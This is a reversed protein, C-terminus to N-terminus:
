QNVPLWPTGDPNTVGPVHGHPGQARPDPHTSPKHGGDLRMGTPNGNADRVQIWKGDPSGTLTEGPKVSIVNGKPDVVFKNASSPLVNVPPTGKAACETVGEFKKLAKAGNKVLDDVAGAGELVSLIQLTNGLRQLFPNESANIKENLWAFGRQLKEAIQDTPVLIIIPRVKPEMGWPDIWNVPDNGVFTHLNLGGAFGIPDAQGFRGLSPVYPRGHYLNVGSQRHRLMSSFQMENVGAMAGNAELVNGFPDYRYNAVLNQSSNILATINGNADAHYYATGNADTRALLGGIGGAGDMEGSLDPGRTYTVQVTNNSDREQLVLMGDFVYRTENTQNWGGGNWSFEKRTRRRGFGDYVWETKWANTELLTTLQNEDDYGYGRTGDFTMSGNADYQLAAAITLTNTAKRGFLEHGIATLRNTGSVPVSATYSGDNTNLTATVGNVTVNTANTTTTGSVTITGALGFNTLQNLRDTAYARVSTLDNTRFALNGAADYGFHRFALISANNSAYTHAATLQGINDYAFEDRSDDKFRNFARLGRTDYAYSHANLVTASSNLLTTNTLQAVADYRDQISAGNPLTLQSRLESAGVFAYGFSGAGSTVTNMRRASDYGYSNTWTNGLTSSSRLQQAFINTLLDNSWPGDESALQGSKTFAFVTTGAADTMQKVRNLPDYDFALDPSNPYNIARLNGVPDYTFATNGKALTWRNTLRANADYAFIFDTQRNANVTSLVRGFVDHNWQNTQTRGDILQTLDSAANYTFRTVELNANTVASLRGGADYVYRTVAGLPNTRFALGNTTYAWWEVGGDPYTRSRLRGVADFTNTVTVGAADTIRIPRDRLDYVVRGAQGFSNSVAVPLGQNNYIFRTTRGGETVQTRRGLPDYTVNWSSSDAALVNTLRTQFDYSRTTVGGLADTVNELAGCGCYTARTAFGNANTVATLRQAADHEFYTWHGLRDQTGFLDLRHYRNSIFTGDSYTQSTLRNLRDFTNTLHLGRADVVTRPLGNSWTFTVTRSIGTESVTQLFGGDPTLANANSYALTTHFGNPRTLGTLKSLAGSYHWATREGAGNVTNTIQHRANFTNTVGSGDPWVVRLLDIGNTSHVFLNTRWGVSGDPQTFTERNSTPYPLAPDDYEYFAARTAGDPLVMAVGTIFPNGTQHASAKNAYHYWVKQGPTTGDPSPAREMSLRDSILRTVGTSDNADNGADLWHRVRARDYFYQSFYEPVPTQNASFFISLLKKGFYFSNRYGLGAVGSGGNDFTVGSVVPVDGSSYSSPVQTPSDYRYVYAEHSGDPEDIVVYRNIRDHGGANGQNLSYGPQLSSATFNTFRTTGYPTTLRAVIVANNDYSNTVYRLGTSIGGADMSNTLRGASDYLFDATRGYPDRVQTIKMSNTALYTLVNTRGDFDVIYHLRLGTPANTKAYGAFSVRGQPDIRKMLYATSQSVHRNILSNCGVSQSALNYIDESGDPYVLRFGNTSDDAWYWHNTLSFESRQAPRGTGSLPILKMRTRADTASDDKFFATGGDPLYVVAEWTAYTPPDQVCPLVANWYSDRYVIRSLWNHTLSTGGMGKNRDDPDVNDAFGGGRYKDRQKITWRFAWSSGDSLSYSLPEDAVFLNCYPESVWWRAM